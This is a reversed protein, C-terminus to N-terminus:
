RTGETAEAAVVRIVRESVLPTRGPTTVELRLRYAGPEVASIDMAVSRFAAGPREPGPEEWELFHPREPDVLGLTEGVRHFFGGGEGELSLRYGITEERWGLGWIEWGVVLSGGSVVTDDIKLRRLAEDTREPVPGPEVLLLDSVRAVDPPLKPIELGRRLRGARGIGPDLVEVSVGYSGAPVELTLAGRPAREMRVTHVGDGDLASLILAAQVPEDRFAPPPRHEPRVGERGRRTTDSPLEWTAAVLARDGRHLVAVHGEMPLIVPAYAPAYASPAYELRPAWREPEPTLPETLVSGRPVFVRSEPHEHGVVDGGGLPRGPDPPVREWGVGWGYRVLLEALDDGWSINHPNRAESRIRVVSHRALHETRRENGPVLHLPDSLRWLLHVLSDREAPSREAADDLARRADRDLLPRPDNWERAREPDMAALARGFADGAEPYRGEVHLTLGELAACWWASGGGCTRAVRLAERSREAELFYWVRQGQVWEDGPLAEAVDALEALLMERAATVEEAEPEPSWLGGTDHIWCMRGVRDDCERSGWRFAIPLHRRRVHEFRRQAERAEDLLDASDAPTEALAVTGTAPPRDQAVVPAVVPSLVPSLLSAAM